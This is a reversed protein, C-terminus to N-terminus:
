AQRPSHAPPSTRRCRMRLRHADQPLAVSVLHDGAKQLPFQAALAEALADPRAASRRDAPSKASEARGRQGARWRPVAHAAQRSERIRRPGRSRRASEPSPGTPTSEASPRRVPAPGSCRTSTSSRSRRPLRSAASAAFFMLAPTRGYPTEFWRNMRAAAASSRPSCKGGSMRAQGLVRRDQTGPLCDGASRERGPPIGRRRRTGPRYRM